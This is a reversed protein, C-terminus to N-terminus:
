TREYWGTGNQITYEEELWSKIFEDVVVEVTENSFEKSRTSRKTHNGHFCLKKMTVEECAM